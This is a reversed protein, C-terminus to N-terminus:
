VPEQEEQKEQEEQAEESQEELVDSALGDQPVNSLNGDEEHEEVNSPISEEQIEEEETIEIKIKLEDREDSM